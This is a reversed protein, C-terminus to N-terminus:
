NYTRVILSLSPSVATGVFAVMPKPVEHRTIGDVGEYRPFLHSFWAAFSSAGGQFYLEGIITTIRENRFPHTRRLLNM